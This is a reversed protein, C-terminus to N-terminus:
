YIMVKANSDDAYWKELKKEYANLLNQSTQTTGDADDVYPSSTDPLSPATPMPVTGDVHGLM